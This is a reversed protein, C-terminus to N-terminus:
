GNALASSRKRKDGQVLLFLLRASFMLAYFLYLWTRDLLRKQNLADALVGVSVMGCLFWLRLFVVVYLFVVKNRKIKCLLLSHGICMVIIGSDGNYYLNFIFNFIM